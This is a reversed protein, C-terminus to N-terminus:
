HFRQKILQSVVAMDARGQVQPKLIAMVKGMEQVTKAGSTSLAQDILTTIEAESLAKPLFEQIIAVEATEQAVLDDRKAAQFQQISDRRQKLMKDLIVLIDQDTLEIREDVEKQKLAATILRITNLRSKDQARMAAKMAEQISTKLASSM